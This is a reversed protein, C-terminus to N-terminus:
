GSYFDKRKLKTLKLTKNSKLEKVLNKISSEPLQSKVHYETSHKGYKTKGTLSVYKPLRKM